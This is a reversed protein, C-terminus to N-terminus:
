RGLMAAARRLDLGDNVNLFLREPDGFRALESGDLFRPALSEVTRRLPEERALAAELAPLLEASYRAQLPQPRGGPAPVVLPEAAAGLEALLAPSVFPMDCALVVVPRGGAERLAALIGCLPHRPQVPERVVRVPDSGGAPRLIAEPLETDPKAVVIAEIGAAALAALPYSILPRGALGATAKAGGFRAGAGGALVAGLPPHRSREM